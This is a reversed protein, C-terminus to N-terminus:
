WRLSTLAPMNDLCFLRLSSRSEGGLPPIFRSILLDPLPCWAPHLATWSSLQSHILYTEENPALWTIKPISRGGQVAGFRISSSFNDGHLPHCIIITESLWPLDRPNGPLESLLSDTQLAPSKPKIGPDPLERPSPFPLGSWYEQRSIGMSPPIKLVLWQPCIYGQMWM